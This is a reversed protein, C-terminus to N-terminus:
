WLDVLPRPSQGTSQSWGTSCALGVAVFCFQLCQSLYIHLQVNKTQILGFPRWAEDGGWVWGKGELNQFLIKWFFKHLFVSSFIAKSIGSIPIELTEIVKFTKRKKTQILGFPRWIGDGGRGWGMGRLNQDQVYTYNFTLPSLCFFQV